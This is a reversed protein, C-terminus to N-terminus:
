AAGERDRFLWDLVEREYAMHMAQHPTLLKHKLACGVMEVDTQKLKLEVVACRLQALLTTRMKEQLDPGAESSIEAAESM